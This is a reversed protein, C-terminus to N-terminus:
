PHVPGSLPPGYAQQFPPGMSTQAFRTTQGHISTRPSIATQAKLLGCSCIGSSATLPPLSSTHTPTHTLYPRHQKQVISRYSASVAMVRSFGTTLFGAAPQSHLSPLHCLERHPRQAMAQLGEQREPCRVTELLAKYAQRYLACTSLVQCCTDAHIHKTHATMGMAHSLTCRASPIGWYPTFHPPYADLLSVWTIPLHISLWTASPHIHKQSHSTAGPTPTASAERNSHGPSSTHPM